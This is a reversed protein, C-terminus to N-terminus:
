RVQEAKEMSLAGATDAIRRVTSYGAIEDAVQRSVVMSAPNGRSIWYHFGSRRELELMKDQTVRTFELKMRGMETDTELM